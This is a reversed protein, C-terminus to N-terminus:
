RLGDLTVVETSAELRQPVSFMTAHPAIDEPRGDLKHLEVAGDQVTAAAVLESRVDQLV